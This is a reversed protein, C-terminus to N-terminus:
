LGLADRAQNGLRCLLLLLLLRDRFLFDGRYNCVECLKMQRNKRALNRRYRAPLTGSYIESLSAQMVNGFIVEWQWDCCCLVVDGNFHVYLHHFPRVCSKRM